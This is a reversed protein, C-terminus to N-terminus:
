IAKRLLELRCWMTLHMCSSFCFSSLRADRDGGLRDDQVWPLRGRAASAGLGWLRYREISYLWDTSATVLTLENVCLESVTVPIADWPVTLATDICEDPHQRRAEALLADVMEQVRKLFMLM